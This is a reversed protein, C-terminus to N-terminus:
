SGYQVIFSAMAERLGEKLGIKPHWGLFHQAKSIDPVRRDSDEYGAGYFEESSVDMLRFRDTRKEPRLDKYIDVMMTALEAITVENSPNGINFIQQKSAEPRQLIRMTADIADDIHTFVRRNKGGDVLKLSKDFLLAEMFCALVRPIGDGDIGPIYDMRAGIFNFPRVITYALNKEYGYAYIVRELLQKATAYSWRQAAIPGMILPSSDEKLLYTDLMENKMLHGQAIGHVTKGYVESTSFHILRKHYAACMKVLEYQKTFNIDIVALPMTNYQAPNCLGALSIVTDCQQVYYAVEETEYINVHEYFFLPHDRYEEIKASSIDIGVVTYNGSALLAKLLHSGIFGGVGPICLKETGSEHAM